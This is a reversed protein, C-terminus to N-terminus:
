NAIALVALGVSAADAVVVVRDQPVAILVSHADNVVDVVLAGEVLFTGNAMVDVIAGPSREALPGADITLGRWGNPIITEDGHSTNSTTLVDGPVLPHTAVLGTIGDVATAIGFRRPIFTQMVNTPDLSDGADLESTVVFIEVQDGLADIEAEVRHHDALLATALLTVGCGLVLIQLRPSRAVANLTSSIGSSARSVAKTVRPPLFHM